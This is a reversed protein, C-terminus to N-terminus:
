ELEKRGRKSLKRISKEYQYSFLDLIRERERM